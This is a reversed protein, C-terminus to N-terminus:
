LSVVKKRRMLAILVPAGVFATVIGVPLESPVIVRGLVDSLLFIIPGILVSFPIIWRQDPGVIGRAVYPVLLGLFAIPGVAATSAGCLITVALVSLIQTRAVNAGLSRAVDDGLVVANLARPLAVALLIGVVMFPAVSTVISMQRNQLSGASWFRISDFVEPNLLTIGQSVGSLVAGLAVGALVLVVPTAGARGRSGIVYVMVTTIGAGAFAWWVYNQPSTAGFLGVAIVVAFYAGANVGLIGPDALPNRTVAQMLAGALGLSIGVLVGLITRPVRYQAVLISNTDTGGHRLAEWVVAPAINGSGIFLSAGVAAVLILALLSLFGVRVGTRSLWRTAAANVAPLVRTSDLTATM